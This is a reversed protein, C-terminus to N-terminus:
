QQAKKANQIARKILMKAAFESFPLRRKQAEEHLWSTILPINQECWGIGNDDMIRARTACRCTPTTTIGFRALLKKLATGVGPRRVVPPPPIAPKSPKQPPEPPMDPTQCARIVEAEIQPWGYEIAKPVTLTKECATCRKCLASTNACDADVFNCIM